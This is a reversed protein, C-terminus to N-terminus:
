LIILYYVIFICNIEGHLLSKKLIGNKYKDVQPYLYLYNLFNRGSFSICFVKTRLLYYAVDQEYGKIKNEEIFNTLFSAASLWSLIDKKGHNKKTTM